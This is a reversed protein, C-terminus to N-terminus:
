KFLNRFDDVNKAMKSGSSKWKNIVDHYPGWPNEYGRHKKYEDIFNTLIKDYKLMINMFSKEIIKKDAIRNWYASSVYEFYNMMELFHFRLKWEKSNQDQTEYIDKATQQSIEKVEAKDNLDILGPELTEIQKRHEATRDNWEAIMNTAFHKRKWSNNARLRFYNLLLGIAAIWIGISKISEETM